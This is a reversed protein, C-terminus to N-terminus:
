TSRCSPATKLNDTSLKAHYGKLFVQVKLKKGDNTQVSIRIKRYKGDFIENIPYYSIQYRAPMCEAKYNDNRWMAVIVQLVGDEYDL